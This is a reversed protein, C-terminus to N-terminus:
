EEGGARSFEGPRADACAKCWAELAGRRTAVVWGANSIAAGLTRRDFGHFTQRRGCGCCQVALSEALVASAPRRPAAAQVDHSRSSPASVM